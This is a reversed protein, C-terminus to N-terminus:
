DPGGLRRLRVGIVDSLMPSQFIAPWFDGIVQVVIAAVPKRAKPKRWGISLVILQPLTLDSPQHPAHLLSHAVLITAPSTIPRLNLDEAAKINPVLVEKALLKDVAPREPAVVFLDPHVKDEENGRGREKHPGAGFKVHGQVIAPVPPHQEQEADPHLRVLLISIAPRHQLVTVTGHNIAEVVIRRAPGLM